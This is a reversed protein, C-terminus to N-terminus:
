SIDVRSFAISFLSHTSLQLLLPYSFLYHPYSGGISYDQTALGWEVGLSLTQSM